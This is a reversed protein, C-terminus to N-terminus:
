EEFWNYNEGIKLNGNKIATRRIAEKQSIYQKKHCDFGDRYINFKCDQETCNYNRCTTM